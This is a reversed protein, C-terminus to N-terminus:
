RLMFFVRISVISMFFVRISVISKQLIFFIRVYKDKVIKQEKPSKSSFFYAYQFQFNFKFLNLNFFLHFHFLFILYFLIICYFFIYRIPAGMPLFFIPPRKLGPTESLVRLRLHVGCWKEIFYDNNSNSKNNTPGM